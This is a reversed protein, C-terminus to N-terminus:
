MPTIPRARPLLLTCTAQQADSMQRPVALALAPKATDDPVHLILGGLAGDYPSAVGSGDISLFKGTGTFNGLQRGYEIWERLVDNGGALNSVLIDNYYALANTFAPADHDKLWRMRERYADRFDEYSAESIAKETLEEVRHKATDNM